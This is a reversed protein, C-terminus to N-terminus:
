ETASEDAAVPYKISNRLLKFGDMDDMRIPQEFVVMNVNERYIADAFQIAEKHTYGTNADIVYSAGKTAESIALVREIDLKM